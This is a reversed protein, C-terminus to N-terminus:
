LWLFNSHPLSGFKIQGYQGWLVFCFPFKFVWILFRCGSNKESGKMGEGLLNFEIIFEMIICLVMTCFGNSCFECFVWLRFTEMCLESCLGDEGMICFAFLGMCFIGWLEKICVGDFVWFIFLRKCAIFCCIGCFEEFTIAALRTWASDLRGLEVLIEASSIMCASAWPLGLLGIVGWRIDGILAEGAFRFGGWLGIDALWDFLEFKLGGDTGDGLTLPDTLDSGGLLGSIGESIGFLGAIELKVDRERSTASESSEESM